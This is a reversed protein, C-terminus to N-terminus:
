KQTKQWEEKTLRLDCTGGGKRTRQFGAATFGKVAATNATSLTVTLAPLDNQEFARQALLRLAPSCYGKQRYKALLIIGVNHTKGDFFWSVEGIPTRGDAIVAYFNDPERDMWFDYWLAWTGRPFDICGTDPHYDPSPEKFRNFAMTKPDSLLQERFLLENYQPLYLRLEM